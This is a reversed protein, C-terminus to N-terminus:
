HRTSRVHVYDGLHRGRPPGMPRCSGPPGQDALRPNAQLSFPREAPRAPLDSVDRKGRQELLAALNFHADAFSHDHALAARYAAEAGDWDSLDHLTVALNFHAVPHTPDIRVADAVGTREDASVSVRM